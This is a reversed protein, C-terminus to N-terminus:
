PLETEPQPPPGHKAWWEEATIGMLVDDWFRGRSWHNERRRGEHVFGLQEYLAQARTNYEWFDLNVKHYGMVGLAYSLFLTSAKAGYGSGVYDPDGISIGFSAARSPMNEENKLALDGILVGGEAKIALCIYRNTIDFEGADFRRQLKDLSESVGLGGALLNLGVSGSLERYRSLNEREIPRLRVRPGVLSPEVM